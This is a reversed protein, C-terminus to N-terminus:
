KVLTIRTPIYDAQNPVRRPVGIKDLLLYMTPRSIEFRRCIESVPVGDDYYAKRLESASVSIRKM